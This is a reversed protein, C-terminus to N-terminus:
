KEIKYSRINSNFGSRSVGLDGLENATAYRVGAQKGIQFQQIFV